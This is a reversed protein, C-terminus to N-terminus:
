FPLDDEEDVDPSPDHVGSNCARVESGKMGYESNELDVDVENGILEFAQPSALAGWGLAQMGSSEWWRNSVKAPAAEGIWDRIWQGDETVICIKIGKAGSKAVALEVAKIVAKM